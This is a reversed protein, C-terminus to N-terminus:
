ATRRRATGAYACSIAFLAATGVLQVRRGLQRAPRVPWLIPTPAATDGADHLLHSVLGSFTAWGQAPDRRGLLAGAALAAALSHTRPRTDLGILADVRLSRAAIVHDVDIAVAVAGATAAARRGLPAAVLAAILAHQLPDSYVRWSVSMLRSASTGPDAAPGGSAASPDQLINPDVSM